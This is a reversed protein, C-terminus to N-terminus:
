LSILFTLGFVWYFGNHRSLRMRGANSVHETRFLSFIECRVETALSIRSELYIYHIIFKKNGRLAITEM